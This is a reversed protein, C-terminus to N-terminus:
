DANGDACRGPAVRSVASAIVGDAAEGTWDPRAVAGLNGCKACRVHPGFSTIFVDDQWDDVNVTSAYGCASCTVYVSRVGLARMGGLTVPQEPPEPPKKGMRPLGRLRSSPEPLYRRPSAQSIASITRHQSGRAM